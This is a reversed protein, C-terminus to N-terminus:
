STENPRGASGAVLALAICSREVEQGQVPIWSLVEHSVTALVSSHTRWSTSEITEVHDEANPAM